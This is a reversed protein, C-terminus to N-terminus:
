NSVINFLNDFDTIETAGDADLFHIYKGSAILM